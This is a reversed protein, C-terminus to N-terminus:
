YVDGDNLFYVWGGSARGIGKNMGDYIGGDKESGADLRIGAEEFKARYEELVKDTGDTSGGDVVISEYETQSIKKQSLVSNLTRALGDADNYAVTIISIM